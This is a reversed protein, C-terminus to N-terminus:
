FWCVRIQPFERFGLIDSNDRARLESKGKQTIQPLKGWLIRIKGTAQKKPQKVSSDPEDPPPNLLVLDPTGKVVRQRVKKPTSGVSGSVKTDKKFKLGDKNRVKWILPAELTSVHDHVCSLSFHVCLIMSRWKVGRHVLCTQKQLTSSAGSWNM